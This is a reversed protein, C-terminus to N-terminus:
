VSSPASATRRPAARAPRGAITWSCGAASSWPPAASSAAHRSSASADNRSSPTGSSTASSWQPSSAAISACREISSWTMASPDCRSKESLIDHVADTTRRVGPTLTSASSPLSAPSSSPSATASRSAFIVSGSTTASNTSVVPTWASATVTPLTCPAYANGVGSRSQARRSATRAAAFATPSTGSTSWPADPRASATSRRAIAAPTQLNLTLVSSRAAARAACSGVASTRAFASAAVSAM